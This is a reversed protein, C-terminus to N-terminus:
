LSEIVVEGDTNIYCSKGDKHVYALGESFDGADYFQYPIVLDGDTDIYGYKYTEDDKVAMLGESVNGIYKYYETSSYIIEGDTNIFGQVEPSDNTFKLIGYDMSETNQYYLSYYEDPILVNGNKDILGKNDWQQAVLTGNNYVFGNAFIDINNYELPVIINGSTDIVGYRVISYEEMYNGVVAVDESFVSADDYIFDIVVNGSEDIFGYKGNKEAAAM